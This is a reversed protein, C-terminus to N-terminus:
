NKADSMSHPLVSRGILFNGLFYTLMIGPSSFPFPSIFKSIAIMSDSTMFILAGSWAIFNHSGSISASAAMITIVGLYIMVPIKLQALHPWLITVMTIAFIALTLIRLTRFNNREALKLFTTTYLLHAILFFILGFLFYKERDLDLAIDGLASFIFGIAMPFILPNKQKYLIFAMSLAPIAKLVFSGPYPHWIMSIMYLLASTFYLSALSTEKSM